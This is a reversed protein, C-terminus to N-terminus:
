ALDFLQQLTRALTAGDTTVAAERLRTTPAVLLGNVIGATGTEVARREAPTLGRFRHEFKALEARRIAYAHRWLLGIADAPGGCVGAAPLNRDALAAAIVPGGMTALVLACREPVRAPVDRRARDRRAALDAQGRTEHQGRPESALLPSRGVRAALLRHCRDEQRGPPEHTAAVEIKETVVGNGNGAPKPTKTEPPFYTKVKM